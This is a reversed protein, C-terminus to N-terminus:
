TLLFERALGEAAAPALERAMGHVPVGGDQALLGLEPSVRRALSEATGEMWKRALPGALLQRANAAWRSPRLMFLWGDGYPDANARPPHQLIRPNVAVVEGDLPSLVDVPDMGEARVRLAPEGQKVMTGVQPLEFAALRGLLKQAFDDLGVTTLAGGARVWTHGPHFQVGDPVEFWDGSEARRRAPARRVAPGAPGQAYRWFPVFLFLYGVAILYELVKAQYASFVQTPEM